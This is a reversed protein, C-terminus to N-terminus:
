AIDCIEYNGLCPSSAIFPFIPLVFFMYGSNKLFSFMGNPRDILILRFIESVLKLVNLARLIRCPQLVLLSTNLKM